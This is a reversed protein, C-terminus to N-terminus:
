QFNLLQPKPTPNLVHRLHPSEGDGEVHEERGSVLSFFIYHLEFYLFFFVCKAFAKKKEEELM